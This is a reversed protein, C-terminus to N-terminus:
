VSSIEAMELHQLRPLDRNEYRRLRTLKEALELHQFDQFTEEWIKLPPNTDQVHQLVFLLIEFSRNTISFFTFILQVLVIFRENWVITGLSSCVKQLLKWQEDHQEAQVKWPLGYDFEITNGQAFHSTALADRQLLDLILWIASWNLPSQWM